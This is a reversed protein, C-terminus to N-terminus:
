LDPSAPVGAKAALPLNGGMFVARRGRALLEKGLVLENKRAAEPPHTAKLLEIAEVSSVHTPVFIVPALQALVKYGKRNVTNADAYSNELQGIVLDAKGISALQAPNLTDQACDGLHVVRFGAVDVVLITNTHGDVENDIHSSPVVEVTVDGSTIKGAEAVLKKGKIRSAMPQSWHDPHTHTVLFISRPDAVAATLDAPEDLVDMFVTVGQPSTLVFGNVRPPPDPIVRLTPPGALAPRALLAVAATLLSAVIRFTRSM